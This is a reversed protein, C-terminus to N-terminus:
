NLNMQNIIQQTEDILQQAWKDSFTFATVRIQAMKEKGHANTFYAHVATSTPILAYTVKYVEFGVFRHFDYDFQKSFITRIITLKKAHTDIIVQEKSKTFAGLFFLATLVLCFYFGAKSNPIYFALGLFAIGLGILKYISSTNKILIYRHGEKTWYKM